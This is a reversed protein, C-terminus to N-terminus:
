LLNPRSVKATPARYAVGSFPKSQKALTCSLMYSVKTASVQITLPKSFIYFQCSLQFAAEFGGGGKGLSSLNTAHIAHKTSVAISEQCILCAAKSAVSTIIYRSTWEQTFSLKECPNNKIPTERDKFVGVLWKFDTFLRLLDKTWTRSNVADETAIM